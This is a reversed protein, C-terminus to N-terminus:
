PKGMERLLSLLAEAQVPKVLHADFGAAASAERDAAQGYGTLAVLRMGSYRPNARIRRAVEHGNMEPLGVDLIVIQPSVKDILALATTGSDASHCELGSLSLLAALMERSDANDEVVVVRAGARLPPDEAAPALAHLAPTAALPLRVVFECGKGEGDSRATVTGGHKEVLTRVLTLGVGLGGNARELTRSSQVFLDFISDIMAPPIGCGDDKVRIVASGADHRLQLLVHGGAPTYKAANALLNVQIQQVRAPDAEVYVPEGEIETTFHLGQADMQGRVLDAAEAVVLRLDIVRRRLEIKNQTVRSAELLDDLLRTMQTSQRELVGVFPEQEPREATGSRLM